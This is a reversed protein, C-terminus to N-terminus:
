LHFYLKIKLAARLFCRLIKEDFYEWSTGRWAKKAHKKNLFKTLVHLPLFNPLFMSLESFSFIRTQGQPSWIYVEEVLFDIGAKLFSKKTTVTQYKFFNFIWVSRQIFFCLIIILLFIYKHKIQM